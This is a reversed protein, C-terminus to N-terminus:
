QQAYKQAERAAATRAEDKEIGARLLGDFAANYCDDYIEDPSATEFDVEVYREIGGRAIEELMVDRGHKAEIALLRKDTIAM